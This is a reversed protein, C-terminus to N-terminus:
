KNVGIENDDAEKIAIVSSEIQQAVSAFLSAYDNSMFLTHHPGFQRDDPLPADSRIAEVMTIADGLHLRVTESLVTKNIKNLAKLTDAGGEAAKCVHFLAQTDAYNEADFTLKDVLSRQVRDCLTSNGSAVAVLLIKSSLSAVKNPDAKAFLEALVDQDIPADTKSSEVLSNILSNEFDQYYLSRSFRRQYRLVWYLLRDSKKSKNLLPLMRRIAAEEILTGPLINAAYTLRDLNKEVDSNEDLQVQVLTLHASLETGFQRADIPLLKEKAKVLDAKAYSLVGQILDKQQATLASQKLAKTAAAPNGGSLIYQVLLQVEETSALSVDSATFVAEAQQMSNKLDKQSGKAGQALRAQLESIERMAKGLTSTSSKPRVFDPAATVVVHDASSQKLGEPQEESEVSQDLDASVEVNSQVIGDKYEQHENDTQETLNLFPIQALVSPKIFYASAGAVVGLIVPASVLAAVTKKKM